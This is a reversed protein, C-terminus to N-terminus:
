LIKLGCNVWVKLLSREGGWNHRCGLKYYSSAHHYQTNKSDFGAISLYKPDDLISILWAIMLIGASPPASLQNVLSRWVCLPPFILKVGFKVDLIVGSWDSFTHMIMPGSLITWSARNDPFDDSIILSPSKVWADIKKGCERKKKCYQNFRIVFSHSDILSGLEKTVLSGANGVVCINSRNALVLEKFENTWRDNNAYIESLILQDSTLPFKKSQLLYSISPSLFSAKVIDKWAIKKSFEYSKDVELILSIVIKKKFDSLSSFNVVIRNISEKDLLFGKDRKALTYAVYFSGSDPLYLIAKEFSFIMEKSYNGKKRRNLGQFLYYYAFL